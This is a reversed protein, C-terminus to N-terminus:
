AANIKHVGTYKGANEITVRTDRPITVMQMQNNHPNLTVVIQTDARGDKGDTSYNEVGLLLISIPEKSM